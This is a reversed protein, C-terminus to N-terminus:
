LMLFWNIGTLILNVIPSIIKSGIGTVLIIIIILFSYQEMLYMINKAKVPLFYFLVKSGDFPPIPILNFIAFIVNFQITLKFMNLIVLGLTSTVALNVVNTLVLVKLIVSFVIALIINSGPGALAVLMNSKARNKFNRDDVIVPKGWGFGLLAIALFGFWDIHKFPDMTLRGLAKQSKDGLKYATYAHAFEHVSLSLLLAPLVYLFSIFGERTFIDFM